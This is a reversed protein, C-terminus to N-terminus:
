RLRGGGYTPVVDPLSVRGSAGSPARSPPSKSSSGSSSPSKSPSKSPPPSTSVRNQPAIKPLATEAQSDALVAPRGVGLLGDYVKRVMPAAANAGTGAQEVMGVVVFRAKGDQSVPGWSALWSTDQKGFVEATGTKGGIQTKYPAGDFALAGSVAHDDTFRLQNAIYDLVTRSVPVKSSAPTIKRVVKGKGDVVAWGLTPKWLTGGNLMASYATALQLPSVTTEGQGISMDANDGARYRWGDTCNEKALKTLYARQSPSPEDPFGRKADACYQERNAKWRALRTERDAYGGSAQEDAPLDVGPASGIGFSSAMHQLYENPKKGANSLAQDAYYENAAFSYFWTDCSVKLAQGLTLPYGPSESEFNTKVRGDITLSPPCAHTQDLTAEGHTIISSSSILKFTSGPAYAGATARGVLPDHASPATLKRYDAVSIGGVFVQPDYTPYSAAALIRGTNPDMVVVAASTAPKGAKRSASIQDRIAQEALSQVNRDISTVLTDGPRAPVDGASGVSYGRADLQLVQAGDTGRLMSDYQEELGSRGITDSDNLKQNRKEDAASVAGTYGLVHAALSGGPYDRVTQTQVAVGPYLERHESIALVTTTSADTAVPVPQYPEGTWCPSPVRVGCPTIEQALDRRPTGLLSALRALVAVGQDPQQVLTERDVTVVHTARNTVLPRGMADVIQGRPAPVAFQGQHLLGATQTPKHPDLVQVYYLRGFLTLVLSTVLVGVVQLRRVRVEAM